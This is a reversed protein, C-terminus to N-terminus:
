RVIGCTLRFVSGKFPVWNSIFALAASRKSRYKRAANEEVDATLTACDVVANAGGVSLASGHYLRFVCIAYIKCLVGSPM